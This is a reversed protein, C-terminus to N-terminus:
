DAALDAPDRVGGEALLRTHAPEWCVEVAAGVRVDRGAGRAARKATLLVDGVEIRYKTADGLYIIEAVRGAWRNLRPDSEGGGVVELHEPRVSALAAAGPGLAGRRAARFRRGGADVLDVHGDDGVAEVTGRLFNCEGVFDAVFADAPEEYLEAPTGVQVVRGDRMVAIRDSMTLAEAQDHTVYVVTTGLREHIRKLELQMRERLKKDLAGLPEDMLLVRPEFVVARALAVRQQQGGSLQRPLRREYGPLRVMELALAVRRAVERPPLRRMQLPFAVNQEVTMHPFLAYNQFVVGLDRKHPPLGAVPRDDIYIEGRSAVAFGAIAMLTTTKGSGSPGLITIFEGPAITLHVDRVAVVNGYVKWLGDLRVSAGRSPARGDARAGGGEPM